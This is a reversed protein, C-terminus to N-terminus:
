PTDEGPFPAPCFVEAIEHEHTLPVQELLQAMARTRALHMAVRSAQADDLPLGLLAASAHVYALIDDRSRDM